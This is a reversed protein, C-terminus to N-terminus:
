PTLDIAARFSGDMHFPVSAHEHVVKWVGDRKQLCVTLRQWWEADEGTEATVATTKALGYCIALDGSILVTTDRKEVEIPGQWGDMWAALGSADFPHGLPPALDYITAGAAYCSAISRVDRERLGREIAEGVAEIAAKESEIIM